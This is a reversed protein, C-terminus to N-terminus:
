IRTLSGVLCITTISWPSTWTTCMRCWSSLGSLQALVRVLWGTLRPLRVVLQEVLLSKGRVSGVFALSAAAIVRAAGVM